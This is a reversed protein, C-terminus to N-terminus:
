VSPVRGQQVICASCTSGFVVLSVALVVVSSCTSDCTSSCTSCASPNNSRRPPPLKLDVNGLVVAKLDKIKPPRPVQTHLDLYIMFQVGPFHVAPMM